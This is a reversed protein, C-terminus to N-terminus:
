MQIVWHGIRNYSDSYNLISLLMDIKSPKKGLINMEQLYKHDCISLIHQYSFALESDYLSTMFIQAIIIDKEGVEAM